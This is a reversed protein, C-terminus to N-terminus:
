EFVKRLNDYERNIELLTDNDGDANDPHFIKILDKYRKKLGRENCVGSFFLEGRVIRKGTEQIYTETNKQSYYQEKEIEMDQKDKALKQLEEELIKWKMEFLQREQVLRKEELQKKSRFDRMEKEFKRKEEALRRKEEKLNQRQYEGEAEATDHFLWQATMAGSQSMVGGGKGYIRVFETQEPEVIFEWIKIYDICWGVINYM